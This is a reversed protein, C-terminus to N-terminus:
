ASWHLDIDGQELEVEEEEETEDDLEDDDDGLGVVWFEGEGNDGNGDGDGDEEAGGVEDADLVFRSGDNDDDEVDAAEGVEEELEDADPGPAGVVLGDLLREGGEGDDGDEEDDEGDGVGDDAHAVKAGAELIVEEGGLLLDLLVRVEVRDVEVVDLGL